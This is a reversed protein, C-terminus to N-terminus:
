PKEVRKSRMGEVKALRENAAMAFYHPSEMAVLAVRGHADSHVGWGHSRVLPSARLCAQGRSFFAARAAAREDEPIGARDAHVTFIVDDSTHGYPADAIMRYQRGAVSEASAPVKAAKLKTDPSVLILTDAYNTTHGGGSTKM